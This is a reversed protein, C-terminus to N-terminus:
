GITSRLLRLVKDSADHGPLLSLAGCVESFEDEDYVLVLSRKDSRAPVHIPRSDVDEGSLSALLANLAPNETLISAILDDLREQDNVALAAIPDYIAVALREEDESLEVHIVPVVPSGETIAEEIRLHGDVVHGTTDNVLVAGVWGLEDLSARMVERQAGPHRRPNYPNALLDEPVEMTLGTVRNRWISM